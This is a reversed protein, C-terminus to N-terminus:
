PRTIVRLRPPVPIKEGSLDPGEYTILRLRRVELKTAAFPHMTVMVLSFDKDM